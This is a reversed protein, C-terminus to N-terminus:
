FNDLFSNLFCFTLFRRFFSKVRCMFHILSLPMVTVIYAVYFIFINWLKGNVIWEDQAIYSVAPICYQAIGHESPSACNLMWVPVVM